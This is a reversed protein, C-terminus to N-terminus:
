RDRSPTPLHFRVSGEEELEEILASRPKLLALFSYSLWYLSAGMALGAAFRM